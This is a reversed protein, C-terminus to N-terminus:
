PKSVSAAYEQLATVQDRLADAGEAVGRYETACTGLLERATRAEHAFAAAVSDSPKAGADLRTITDRLGALAAVANATRSAFLDQREQANVAIREVQQRLAQEKARAENQATLTAQVVNFNHKKYEANLSNYRVTQVGLMLALTAGIIAWVFGPVIDFIRYM